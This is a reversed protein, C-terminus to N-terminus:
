TPKETNNQQNVLDEKYVTIYQYKQYKRTPPDLTFPVVAKGKKNLKRVHNPNLLIWGTGWKVYITLNYVELKDLLRELKKTRFKVWLDAIVVEYERGREKDEGALKKSGSKKVVQERDIQRVSM